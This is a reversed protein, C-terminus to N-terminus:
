VNMHGAGDGNTTGLLQELEKDLQDLENETKEKRAQLLVNGANTMLAIEVQCLEVRKKDITTELKTIQPDVWREQQQHQLEAIADSLRKQEERIEAKFADMMKNMGITLAHTEERGTRYTRAHQISSQSTVTAISDNGRSTTQEEPERKTDEHNTESNGDNTMEEGAQRQDEMDDGNEEYNWDMNDIANIKNLSGMIEEGNQNGTISKIIETPNESKNEGRKGQAFYAEAMQQGNAGNANENIRRISALNLEASKKDRENKNDAKSQAESNFTEVTASINTGDVCNKNEETKECNEM